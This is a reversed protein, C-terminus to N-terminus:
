VHVQLDSRSIQVTYQTNFLVPNFDRDRGIGASTSGEVRDIWSYSVGM